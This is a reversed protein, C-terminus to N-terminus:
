DASDFVGNKECLVQAVDNTKPLSTIIYDVDKSFHKEIVTKCHDKRSFGLWKWVSDL